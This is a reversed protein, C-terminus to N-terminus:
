YYGKPTNSTAKTITPTADVDACGPDAAPEGSCFGAQDLEVARLAKEVQKCVDAAYLDRCAALLATYAGNFDTTTTYYTTQARYFIAEEMERGIGTVTCGNFTGGIAMLYAAKNVVSSNLHVGGNDGEGCYLNESMYRDPYPISNGNEDTYTYTTPDSMSRLAGTSLEAGMLWDNSGTVYYELAEGFVDSNAENLAGIEYTYTLGAPAGNADLVSYFNVAHAYEHASIDNTVFGDCYHMAGVNDFFANPCYDAEATYYDIYTLGTTDTVPFNIGDGMGSNGNAGERGFKNVYYNYVNGLNDYLDDTDTLSDVIYWYPNVGRAPQGESRGYTYGTVPDTSDIYCNGDFYSCDYIQRNIAEHLGHIQYVLEGTHANIFYYEHFLPESQYLDIQWVLINESPKLKNLLQENFIYLNSKLVSTGSQGSLNEAISIAENASVTPVVDIDPAASSVKGTTLRGGTALNHHLKLQGGFVPVGQYSQQLSTHEISLNDVTTHATTLEYDASVSNTFLLSSVGLALLLSNM